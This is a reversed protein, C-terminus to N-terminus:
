RAAAVALESLREMVQQAYRRWLPAIARVVPAAGARPRFVYTWRIVTGGAESAAFVFRGDIERVFLRLMGRVPVVRYRFLGPRSVQVVQEDLEGGDALRVTRQQGETGWIEGDDTTGVVAPLPGYGCFISALEVPVVLDFAAELEGPVRRWVTVAVPKPGRATPACFPAVAVEAEAGPQVPPAEAPEVVAAPADTTVPHPSGPESRRM